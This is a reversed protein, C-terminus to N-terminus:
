RSHRAWARRSERSRCLERRLRVLGHVEHRSHAYIGVQDMRDHHQRLPPRRPGPLGLDNVDLGPGFDSLRLAHKVGQRPAYEIDFTTGDGDGTDDRDSYLYQGEFNWQGGESLYQFDAAHVVADSDDHNVLTSVFGLGRYTANVNDEYLVRLVGFDRGTQTYVNNDDATLDTDDEIAGLM